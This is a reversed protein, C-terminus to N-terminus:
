RGSGKCPINSIHIWFGVAPKGLSSSCYGMAKSGGPANKSCPCSWGQCLNGARPACPTKPVHILEPFIERTTQSTFIKQRTVKPTASSGPPIFLKRSGAAPAPILNKKEEIHFVDSFDRPPQQLKSRVNPTNRFFDEHM